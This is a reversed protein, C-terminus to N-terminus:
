QPPRMVHLRVQGHAVRKNEDNRIDVEWLHQQRGMHLPTGTVRVMGSVHPRLFDTTNNVGVVVYGDLAVHLWGAISAVSEIVACWVGGHVIGFPQHLREDAELTATLKEAQFSEFTLGLYQGAFPDDGAFVAMMTDKDIQEGARFRRLVGEAADTLLRTTV